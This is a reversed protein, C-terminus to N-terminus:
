GPARRQAPRPASAWRLPRGSRARAPQRRCRPSRRRRAKPLSSAVLARPLARGHAPPTVAPSVPPPTQTPISYPRLHPPIPTLLSPSPSPDRVKHSDLWVQTNAKAEAGRVACCALLLASSCALLLGMVTDMKAQAKEPLKKQRWLVCMVALLPGQWAHLWRANLSPCARPLRPTRPRKLLPAHPTCCFSFPRRGLEVAERAAVTVPAARPPAGTPPEPPEPTVEPTVEPMMMMMAPALTRSFWNQILSSKSRRRASCRTSTRLHYFAASPLRSRRSQTTLPLLIRSLRSPLDAGCIETDLGEMCLDISASVTLGAANGTVTVALKVGFQVNVGGAGYKQFPIDIEKTAGAEVGIGISIKNIDSDYSITCGDCSPPAPSSSPPPSTATGSGSNVADVGGQILTDLTTDASGQLVPVTIGASVSASAPDGCPRVTTGVDFTLKIAKLVDPLPPSGGLVIACKADGGINANTGDGVCSCALGPVANLTNIGPSLLDCVANTPPPPPAPPSPPCAPGTCQCDDDYDCSPHAGDATTAPSADCDADCYTYGSGADCSSDCSGDHCAPDCVCSKDSSCGNAASGCKSTGAVTQCSVEDVGECVRCAPATSAEGLQRGPELDPLYFASASAALLLVGRTLM